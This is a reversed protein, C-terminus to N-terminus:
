FNITGLVTEGRPYQVDGNDEATIFIRVPKYPTVTKLSSKLTSSLISSSTNLQGINKVGNNETDMWVIYMEKSPSLRKPDALRMVSLDINYNNNNDKKIKISGEAAPVVSSTGFVIKQSCSEVLIIAFLGMILFSLIKSISSHQNPKIINM